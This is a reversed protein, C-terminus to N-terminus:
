AGVGKIVLLEEGQPDLRTKFATNQNWRVLMVNGTGHGHLPLVDTGKVPGPLWRSEDSTDICRWETDSPAMQGIAAYMLLPDQPDLDGARQLTFEPSNGDENNPFRYYWHASLDGSPCSLKGQQILVELDCHGGMPLPSHGHMFGFQAVMRLSPQLVLEFLRIKVGAIGTDLWRANEALYVVRKEYDDQNCADELQAVFRSLWDPLPCAPTRSASAPDSKM